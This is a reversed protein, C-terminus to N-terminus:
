SSTYTGTLQVALTFPGQISVYLPKDINKSIMEISKLNIPMRGSTYPDLIEYKELAKIDTIPHSLVSSFDYDPKLLDLGLTECFIAGDCLSYTFDSEFIENMKKTVELQKEASNYVESAKYGTLFLGNTGMDPLFFSRNESNIYQLLTM